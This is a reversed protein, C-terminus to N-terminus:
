SKAATIVKEFDAQALEGSGRAKVKGDAGVAIFYPFGPTALADGATKFHDDGIVPGTWKMTSTLWKGPPWNPLTDNASASVVVLDVGATLGSNIWKIVQPLENNCHPCWHAAVIVVTPKGTTPLSHVVGSYDFGTLTPMVLGVAPDNGSTPVAPLPSGNVSVLPFNNVGSSTATSSGNAILIAIILAAVVVGGVIAWVWSQVKRPTAAPAITKHQPQPNM